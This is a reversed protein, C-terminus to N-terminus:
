MRIQLLNLFSFFDFHVIVKTLIENSDRILVASVEQLNKSGFVFLSIFADREEEGGGEYEEIAVVQEEGLSPLPKRRGDLVADGHVESLRISSLLPLADVCSEEVEEVRRWALLNELSTSRKFFYVQHKMKFYWCTRLDLVDHLGGVHQLVVLLM